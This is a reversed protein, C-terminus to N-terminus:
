GRRDHHYAVMVGIAADGLKSFGPMRGAGRRIVNEVDATSRREALGVLGPFEPPTGRRDPRHCGSCNSQYLSQGSATAGRRPREILRLVWAMENANVYLLGTAPRIGRRGM